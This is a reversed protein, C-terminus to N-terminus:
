HKTKGNIAANAVNMDTRYIHNFVGYKDEDDVLWELDEQEPPMTRMLGFGPRPYTPPHDKYSYDESSEVHTTPISTKAKGQALHASSLPTTNTKLSSSLPTRSAPPHGHSNATEVPTQPTTTNRSHDREQIQFDPGFVPLDPQLSTARTLLTVLMGPPLSAFYKQRQMFILM